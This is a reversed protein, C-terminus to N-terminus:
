ESRFGAAYIQPQRVDVLVLNKHNCVFEKCLKISKNIKISDTSEFALSRDVQELQDPCLFM